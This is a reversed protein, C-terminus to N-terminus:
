TRSLYLRQLEKEAFEMREAMQEYYKKLLRYHIYRLEGYQQQVTEEHMYKNMISYTSKFNLKEFEAFLKPGYQMVDLISMKEVIDEVFYDDTIGVKWPPPTLIEELGHPNIRQFLYEPVSLSQTGGLLVLPRKYGREVVWDVILQEHVHVVVGQALDHIVRVRQVGHHVNFAEAREAVVDELGDSRFLM